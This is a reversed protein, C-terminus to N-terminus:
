HTYVFSLKGWKDYLDNLDYGKELLREKHANINDLLEQRTYKCIVNYPIVGDYSFHQENSRFRNEDPLFTIYDCHWTIYKGPNAELYDLAEEYSSFIYSKRHLADREDQEKKLIDEKKKLLIEKASNNKPM